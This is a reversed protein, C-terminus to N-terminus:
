VNGRSRKAKQGTFKEWRKVIVDCYAPDIELGYCRRGLQEAAIISTGSGLFPDLVIEGTRSSNRIARAFLGVPKMTPHLKSASPRDVQWLSVEGPPGYYKHAGKVWGYLISEHKYHYDSRGLVHNNKAWVLLQRQLFGSDRLAILLPLLLFGSPGTIYFSAGDGAFPRITSFASKWFAAMQEPTQDDHAIKKELRKGSDLSNLFENKDAYSVGYPPDTVLISYREDGMLEQVGDANRADGCLLRHEGLLWLDGAKSKAKGAAPVADPDTLGAKPEEPRAILDELEAQTFGTIALDAGSIKLDALVVSLRDPDFQGNIRNLALNLQKEARADLDVQVVPLTKIGEAEAAKVRQHGGVIHGSRRNVVVPEVTGFRRMSRRLAALDHDSILRPNYPAAMGALKTTKFEQVKM